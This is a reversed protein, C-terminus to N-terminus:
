PLPAPVQASWNSARVPPVPAPCPRFGETPHPRPPARALAHGLHGPCGWRGRGPGERLQHRNGGRGHAPLRQRDPFCLGGPRRAPERSGAPVRRRGAGRGPGREEEWAAPEKQGATHRDTQGRPWLLHAQACFNAPAHDARRGARPGLVFVSAPQFAPSDPVSCTRPSRATVPEGCEPAPNQQQTETRNARFGRAGDTSQLRNEALIIEGPAADM